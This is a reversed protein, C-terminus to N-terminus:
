SPISPLMYAGLGAAARAGGLLLHWYAKSCIRNVLSSIFIDKRMLRTALTPYTSYDIFIATM